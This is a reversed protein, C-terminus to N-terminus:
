GLREAISEASERYYVMTMALSSHGAMRALDYPSLVKALRTLASARADHFVFGALGARKRARRFTADLTDGDCHWLRGDSASRAHLLKKARILKLLEVARTSLPVDRGPGSKSKHLTAVRRKYDVDAPKLALIEGARMATELAVLFAVAVEHQVTEVRRGDFGLAAVMADREADSILRKRAPQKPPRRVDRIPNVAIWQLELRARELVSRLLTMERRVTEPKVVKSRADRWDAIDAPTLERLPKKAWPKGKLEVLRARESRGRPSQELHADIADALTKSGRAGKGDLLEGERRVIWDVAEARTEFTASDRTGRRYVEARWTQGRKRVSGM